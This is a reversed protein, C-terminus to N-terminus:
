FLCNCSYQHTFRIKSNSAIQSTQSKAQIATYQCPPMHGVPGKTEINEISLAKCVEKRFASCQEFASNLCGCLLICMILCVHIALGILKIFM